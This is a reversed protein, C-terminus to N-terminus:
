DAVAALLRLFDGAELSATGVLLGDLGGQGLFAGVNEATVSGGYLVRVPDAAATGSIAAVEDRITCAGDFAERPSAAQGTGIAFGPEYAFIVGAIEERTLQSLGARLQARLVDLAGQPGPDGGSPPVDGLCYVPRLGAGLAARLKRGAEEDTEHAYRRRESHAVLVHSCGVDRLQLPSVMGTYAGSEEWFVDQAGVRLRDGAITRAVAGLATFGPFVIAEVRGVLPSATVAQAWSCAEAVTKHMKFNAAVMTMPM